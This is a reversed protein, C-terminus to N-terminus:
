NLDITNKLDDIRRHYYCYMDKSYFSAMHPLPPTYITLNDVEKIRFSDSSYPKIPPEPGKKDGLSIDLPLCNPLPNPQPEPEDFSPVKRSSFPVDHNYINLGLNELQTEDLPEVEMSIGIIEEVEELYTVPSTYKEFSPVVQPTSQPSLNGVEDEMEDLNGIPEDYANTSGLISMCRPLKVMIIECELDKKYTKKPFVIMDDLKHTM